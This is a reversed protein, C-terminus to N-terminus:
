DTPVTVVRLDPVCAYRARVDAEPRDTLVTPTAAAQLLACEEEVSASHQLTDSTREGSRYADLLIRTVADTVLVGDSWVVQAREAGPAALLRLVTAGDSSRWAGTFAGWPAVLAGVTCAAAVTALLGRVVVRGSSSADREWTLAGVVALPSLGLVTTHWLLKAPYYRTVPIGLRLALVVATLAPLACLLLPVVLGRDKRHAVVLGATAVLGLVLLWLPVPAEVDAVVAHGVGVTEVVATLPPLSVAGALLALGAVAAVSRPRAARTRRIWAWSATLALLGSVPLLLQWTHSMVLVGGWTTLLATVSAPRALVERLGVALLLAATFTGEFGLAQYSGLFAPWLTAAGALAAAVAAARPRVGVRHALAATLTATALTLAVSLLWCLASMVSVLGLLDTRPGTPGTLSWVLTVLTHWGRPYNRASYDLAGHAREDAVLVVNRVHDGGLFWEVRAATPLALSGLLLALLLLAPAAVLLGRGVAAWRVPSRGSRASGASRQHLALAVVPALALVLAVVSGSRTALPRLGLLEAATGVVVVSALLVVLLAPGDALPAAVDRDEPTPAGTAPEAGVPATVRSSM